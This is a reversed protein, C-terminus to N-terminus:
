ISGWQASRRQVRRARAGHVKALLQLFPARLCAPSLQPVLPSGIAPHCIPVQKGSTRIAKNSTSQSTASCRNSKDGTWHHDGRNSSCLFVQLCVLLLEPVREQPCLGAGSGNSPNPMTLPAAACVCICALLLLRMCACPCVVGAPRVVELPRHTLIDDGINAWYEAM